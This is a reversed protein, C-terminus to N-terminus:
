PPTNSSCHISLSDSRCGNELVPLLTVALVKPTSLEAASEGTLWEGIGAFLAVLRDHLQDYTWLLLGSVALRAVFGATNAKPVSPPSAPPAAAPPAIDPVAQTTM